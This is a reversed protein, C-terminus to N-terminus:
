SNDYDVADLNGFNNDAIIERSLRVWSYSSELTRKAIFKKECNHYFM